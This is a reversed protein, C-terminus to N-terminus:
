AGALLESATQLDTILHTWLRLDPQTLLPVLAKTKTRGCEGCTGALLVVYKDDRRAREVLDSIEFLTVARVPCEETIPGTSSYPRFQVDGIWGARRMRDLADPELEGEEILNELFQGLMGHEDEESALSTIVIDIQEAREFSKHVGPGQKVREYDRNAVVTEAYLAVCDVPTLADDFYSFYTIPAKHPQDVRFGGASLAHLVLKPHSKDSYRHALRKAVLMASYGAGLGIHVPGKRAAGLREILSLVLDAGAAAVHQAAGPGRVDVVQLVQKDDAYRRVQFHEALQRALLEKRPPQLFLFKRRVGQWVLPYIRQRTLDERDFEKQAWQAVVAAAGRKKTDESDGDQEALQQLFRECVAFVLEDSEESPVWRRGRPM